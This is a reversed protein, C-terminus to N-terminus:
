LTLTVEAANTNWIKETNNQHGSSSKARPKHFVHFISIKAWFEVRTFYIKCIEIPYV